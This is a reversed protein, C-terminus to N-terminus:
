YLSLNPKSQKYREYAMKWSPSIVEKTTYRSNRFHGCLKCFTQLQDTMSDNLDPFNKRAINFGFIRDIGGAVACPYYGYPTLGVGCNATIWCGSSFDSFKYMFSDCPAINFLQFSQFESKKESNLIEIEKPLKALFAKVAQGFGNTIFIIECDPSHKIKYDLLLNLIELADPHLAPEGGTIRIIKLRINKQILEKIFKQIQAVTLKENTPAQRCSRDCNICKLNCYYTLDIEMSIRSRQYTPGFLKTIIKESRGFLYIRKLTSYLGLLAKRKKIEPRIKNKLGELM